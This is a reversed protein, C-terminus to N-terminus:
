SNPTVTTTVDTPSSSSTPEPMKKNNVLRIITAIDRSCDGQYKESLRPLTITFWSYLAYAVCYDKCAQEIFVDLNANHNSPFTLTVSNVTSATIFSSTETALWVASQKIYDTILEKERSGLTIAEFLLNGQDDASRKGIISLSREVIVYLDTYNLTIQM